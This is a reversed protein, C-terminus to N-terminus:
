TAPLDVVPASAPTDDGARVVLIAAAIALAGVTSAVTAIWRRRSRPEAALDRAHSLAILEGSPTVDGNRTRVLIPPTLPLAIAPVVPATVVTPPASEVAPAVVAAAPPTFSAAIQNYVLQRLASSPSEIIPDPDADLRRRMAESRVPEPVASVIVADDFDALDVDSELLDSLEDLKPPPPLPAAVDTSETSPQPTSPAGAALKSAAPAPAAIPEQSTM